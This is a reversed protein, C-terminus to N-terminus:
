KKGGKRRIGDEKKGNDEPTPPPVQGRKIDIKFPMRTMRKGDLFVDFWYVGSLHVGIMAENKVNLGGNSVDKLTVTRNVMETRKGSPSLVVVKLQHDGPSDGSRFTLLFFKRIPFPKDKSPFDAPAEDSIVINMGDHIRIVSLSGDADELINECFFAAALFPGGIKAASQKKAM